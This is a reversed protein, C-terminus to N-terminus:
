GKREFYLKKLRQLCKYKQNKASDTNTYGLDDCIEQMSKGEMYFGSLVARCPDGLQALCAEMKDFQAEKELHLELDRDLSVNMDAQGGDDLLERPAFRGKERLSKLWVRRSVAYLYTALRCDLSFDAQERLKDYLILVSEQFIDKAEDETGSNQLVMRCVGPYCTNYVEELALHDGRVMGELIERDTLRVLRLGTAAKRM